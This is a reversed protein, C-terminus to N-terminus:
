NGQLQIGISAIELGFSKVRRRVLEELERAVSDKDTLFTDLERTGVVARLALQTERYLAQRADDVVTVSQRVDIVRYNVVANMRLTVKDATMIEQGPIDLVTERLDVSLLKVQAINKWAAHRGPALTEVYDGDIFLVGVQGQEITGIELLREAMPSRTIVPLDM